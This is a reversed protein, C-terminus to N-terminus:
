LAIIEIRRAANHAVADAECDAYFAEVSAFGRDKALKVQYRRLAPNKRDRASIGSWVYAQAGKAANVRDASFGCNEIGEDAIRIIAWAFAYAHDSNRTITQGNSFTATFKTKM